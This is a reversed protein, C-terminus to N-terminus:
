CCFSCGVGHHDRLCPLTSPSRLQAACLAKSEQGMRQVSRQEAAKRPLGQFPANIKPM